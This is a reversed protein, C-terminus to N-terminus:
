INQTLYTGNEVCILNAGDIKPMLDKNCSTIICQRENFLNVLRSSRLADLESFLDDFLFVCNEGTLSKIIEGEALKIALVGSRQQGQSAFTRAAYESIPIDTDDLSFYNERYEKIQSDFESQNNSVFFLLEDRHPGLSTRGIFLDHNRMQQYKEEFVSAVYEEDTFDSLALQSTYKTFLAESGASLDSYLDLVLRSLNQCFLSRQKTIVAGAKSLLGDLVSLYDADLKLKGQKIDKLYSNRQLLLKSYENLSKVYRPKIQCLALDIFHRRQEPAGKILSLHDPTFLVARFHGLFDSVKEAPTQEIRMVKVLGKDACSIGFSMNHKGYSDNYCISASAYDKQRAIIDKDRGVRFSKGSAFFFIAELTNTKGAANQGYLINIGNKFQLPMDSKLNRFNTTSLSEIFM